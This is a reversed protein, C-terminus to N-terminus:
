DALYASVDISQSTGQHIRQTISTTAGAPVRDDVDGLDWELMVNIAHRTLNDVIVKIENFALRIITVKAYELAISVRENVGPWHINARPALAAADAASALDVGPHYNYTWRLFTNNQELVTLALDRSIQEPKVVNTSDVLAAPNAFVPLAGIFLSAIIAVKM